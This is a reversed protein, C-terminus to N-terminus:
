KIVGSNLASPLFAMWPNPGVGPSPTFNVDLAYPWWNVDDSVKQGQPSVNAANMCGDDADSDDQPGSASGWYVLSAAQCVTPDENLFGWEANGAVISRHLRIFAADATRIGIRNDVINAGTVEVSSLLGAVDLGIGRPSQSHGRIELDDVLLTGGQVSIGAGDDSAGHVVLGAGNITSRAMLKIGGWGTEPDAAGITVPEQPDDNLIRLSARSSENLGIQLHAGARFLLTLGDQARLLPTQPSAVLVDGDFEVPAGPNTWVTLDSTVAQNTRVLIRNHKNDEVTNRQGGQTQDEGLIAGAQSLAIAMPYGDSGRLTSRLLAGPADGWEIMAAGEGGGYEFTAYEIDAYDADDTIELGKWSGPTGDAGTFVIPKTMTYTGAVRLGASDGVVLSSGERFLLRLDDGDRGGAVISLVAESSQAELTLTGDIEFAAGIDIWRASYPLDVEAEDALVLIRDVGNQWFVPEDTVSLASVFRDVSRPLIAVPYREAHAMQLELAITDEGIVKLMPEGGRGGYEIRANMLSNAVSWESLEISGWSGPEMVSGSFVIPEGITGDAELSGRNEADVGITMGADPGFLLITGPGIRLSPEDPGGVDIVDTTRYPVCFNFWTQGDTVDVAADGSIVIVEDGNGIFDVLECQRGVTAQGPEDLSPGLANAAFALPVGEALRFVIANMLVVGHAEVMPLSDQGGSMLTIWIMSSELAGPEFLWQQWSGPDDLVGTVLIPAEQTGTAQLSSGAAIVLSSGESMLVRAGPQITLTSNKVTVTCSVLHPSSAATWTENSTIEGCHEKAQAAVPQADAALLLGSGALLMTALVLGLGTRLHNM